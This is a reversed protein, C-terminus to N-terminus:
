SAPKSEPRAAPRVDDWSGTNGYEFGDRFLPLGEKVITFWDLSTGTTDIFRVDLTDGEATLIVSGLVAYATFMAPHDLGANAGGVNGGTGNVVYVTGQHPGPQKTYSGDGDVRGDGHDLAMVDPDFSGSFGYHGDLLYSREYHHSHGNLVLDVGSAELVPVVLERVDILRIETDSDHSGKTYPPHHFFAIMWDRATAQLDAALWQLMEDGPDLSTDASDLCVFHINGHDFSYYAETGTAIGGAQGFTPLSFVEFYPGTQTTSSASHADHNGLTPSL